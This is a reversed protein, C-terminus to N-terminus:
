EDQRWTRRMLSFEDLVELVRGFYDVKNFTSALISEKKILDDRAVKSTLMTHMAEALTTPRRGDFYLACDGLQEKHGAIDTCIVPCGLSVAEIPPMNNPGMLSAFVMATAHKYLFKLTGTSVFGVYHVQEGLGLRAIESKIYQLTYKEAGTFYVQPKDGYKKQLLVLADLIATHNKHAWFQAPYFFYKGDSPLEFPPLEEKDDCFSAVPFPAIRIKSPLISYNELIEQKGTENGTLIFTARFLMTQFIKERSNWEGRASVEPFASLMRHGLDWVTYIYPYDIEPFVCPVAFYFIEIDEQQAAINIRCIKPRSVRMGLFHKVKRKLRKKFSLPPDPIAQLNIYTLGDAETKYPAGKSNHIIFFRYANNHTKQAEQRITTLLSYAGGWEPTINDGLYIGVNM